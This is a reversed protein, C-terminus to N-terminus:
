YFEHFGIPEHDREGGAGPRDGSAPAPPRPGPVDPGREGRDRDADREREWKEREVRRKERFQELKARQEPTLMRDIEARTSDVIARMEPGHESWFKEMQQRRKEFISDRRAQQAATLDLEDFISHRDRREDHPARPEAPQAALPEKGFLRPMAFGLMGGALFTASMVAIAIWRSRGNPSVM